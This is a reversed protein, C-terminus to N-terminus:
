YYQAQHHNCDLPKKFFFSNQSTEFTMLKANTGFCRLYSDM